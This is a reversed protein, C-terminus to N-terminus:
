SAAGGTGRLRAVLAEVGAEALAVVQTFGAERGYYPDPVEADDLFLAPEIGRGEQVRRMAALNARDMAYVADFDLFDRALLLRARHAELSYGRARAAAISRPDAGQGVHYGETGASAVDVALGARAFGARAVAEVTPSRCINGMCVFLIRM